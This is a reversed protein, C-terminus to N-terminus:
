HKPLARIEDIISAIEATSTLREPQGSQSIIVHAAGQMASMGTLISKRECIKLYLLSANLDGKLASIFARKGLASLREIELLM